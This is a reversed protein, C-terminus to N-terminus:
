EHDSLIHSATQQLDHRLLLQSPASSRRSARLVKGALPAELVFFTKSFFLLIEEFFDNEEM